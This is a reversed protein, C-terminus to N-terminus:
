RHNWLEIVQEKTYFDRGYFCDAPWYWSGGCKPCFIEWDDYRGDMGGNKEVKSLRVKGGCLCPHLENSDNM